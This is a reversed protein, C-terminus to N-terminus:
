QTPGNDDSSGAFIKRGDALTVSRANAVKSGDRALYGMVTVTDGVRLSTRNWGRRMLGNPSALEFEWSTTADQDKVSIYFHAHPNTWELKTVVGTLTVPKKVDFEAAFAHHAFVQAPSALLTLTVAALLTQVKKVRNM